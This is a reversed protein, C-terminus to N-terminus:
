RGRGTRRPEPGRSALDLDIRAADTDVRRVIVRLEDGLGYARKTREGVLRLGGRELHYYDSPLGTVHVLGDAFVDRLTVFLGFATVATVIGDFEEGIRSVLALCKCRAEVHRTAEDARREQMSTTRGLHEAAPGDLPFSGPKAKALVHAIGRHVVLDPYRRIPSTFHAYCGLALGFHGTNAPQYVAQSMSRLVATALLAFDPRDRLRGLIRNLERPQRQASDPLPFGLGQLMVRLDEFKKEEPGEHVRFLTPLRHRRLFRAAEVNAAIMCEEILRHADVRLRPVVAGINGDADVVIKTEPLDLDLAGRAARARALCQYAGYLHGLETGLAAVAPPVPEGDRWAQVQNYTLRARSHMVARYFRSGRVRGEADLQMDCVMCLRDVAPNLSCLGNSLSEPLMPVVRDPFYVSTGRRRAEADIVDGHRVYHGVDAIAVLVRYGGDAPLACVADDFDRADEGDITVLPLDRVDVRGERDRATVQSPLGDAASLVPGPWAGPLAFTEIAAHTLVRPDAPNGLVRTVHGQAERLAGPYETIALRVLDGPQAGGRHRDPVVFSVPSRGSAVVYGVGHARQYRGVVSDRGRAIIEVVAGARRGGRGAPAVRVAIRDGEMLERMETASLYVDASGDDPILFGYGDRHATVVGTVADLKDLLCYEGRRNILLQGADAMQRLRRQLAAQPREGSIGLQAALDPLSRPVGAERLAALLAAPEPV